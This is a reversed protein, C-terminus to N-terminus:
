RRHKPISVLGVAGGAPASEIQFSGGLSEARETMGLLGLSSGPSLLDGPLGVGDDEVKLVWSDADDSLAIQVRSAHAHRAVNTLLEQFIRFLTTAVAPKPPDHPQVDVQTQVGARAEFRRAEDRLAAPLGLADLASPRLEVAIRQVSIITQDVLQEAEALRQALAAPPAGDALRRIM